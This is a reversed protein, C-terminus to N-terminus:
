VFPVMLHDGIRLPFITMITTSQITPPVFHCLYEPGVESSTKQSANAGITNGLRDRCVFVTLNPLFIDFRDSNQSYRYLQLKELKVSYDIGCAYWVECAYEFLQRIYILCKEFNSRNM